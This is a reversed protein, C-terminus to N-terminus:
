MGTMVTLIQSFSNAQASYRFSNQHPNPQDDGAIQFGQGLGEAKWL